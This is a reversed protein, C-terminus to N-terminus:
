YVELDDENIDHILHLRNTNKFKNLRKLWHRWYIKCYQPSLLFVDCPEGSTYAIVVMGHNVRWEYNPDHNFAGLYASIQVPADYTEKLTKKRKSSLKWDILVPTKRFIAVCDVVGKYELTPHAVASEVAAVKSIGKFVWSLSKLANRTVLSCNPEIQLNLMADRVAKHFEHGRARLAESHNHLGEEGFNHIMKQRWNSLILESRYPVTEELISTVSPFEAVSDVLTNNFSFKLIPNVYTSQGFTDRKASGEFPYNIENISNDITKSKNTSKLRLKRKSKTKYMKHTRKKTCSKRTCCKTKLNKHSLIILRTRPAHWQITYTNFDRIAINTGEIETTMNKRNLFMKLLEQKNNKKIVAEIADSIPDLHVAENKIKVTTM